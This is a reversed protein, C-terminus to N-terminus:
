DGLWEIIFRSAAHIGVAELRDKGIARFSHPSGPGIMVIDGPGAVVDQGDVTIAAQGSRVLCIEPYPHRHLAPGEGPLLDGVLFSFGVGYVEGEFEVTAIKGRPAEGQKMVRFM